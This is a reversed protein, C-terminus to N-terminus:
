RSVDREGWEPKRVRDRKEKTLTRFRGRLTSEAETFGGQRRIERYPVGMLRSGVLFENRAERHLAEAVTASEATAVVTREPIDHPVDAKMGKPKIRRLVEPKQAAAAEHKAYTRARPIIPRTKDEDISENDKKPLIPVHSRSRPESPLKQRIGATRSV